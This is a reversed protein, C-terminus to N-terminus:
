CTFCNSVRKDELIVEYIRKRSVSTNLTHYNANQNTDGYMHMYVVFVIYVHVDVKYMCQIYIKIYYYVPTFQFHIEVHLYDFYSM